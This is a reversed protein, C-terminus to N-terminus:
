PGKRADHPHPAPRRWGYSLGPLVVILFLAILRLPMPIEIYILRRTHTACFNQRRIRVYYTTLASVLTAFPADYRAESTPREVRDAYNQWTWGCLHQIAPQHVNGGCAHAERGVHRQNQFFQHCDFHLILHNQRLNAMAMGFAILKDGAHPRSCWTGLPECRPSIPSYTESIISSRSRRTRAPSSTADRISASSASSRITPRTCVSCPGACACAAALSTVWSCPLDRLPRFATM